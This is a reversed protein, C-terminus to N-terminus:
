LQSLRGWPIATSSLSPQSDKPTADEAEAVGKAPQWCPSRPVFIEQVHPVIHGHSSVNHTINQRPRRGSLSKCSEKFACSFTHSMNEFNFACILVTTAAAGTRKEALFKRESSHEPLFSKAKPATDFMWAQM